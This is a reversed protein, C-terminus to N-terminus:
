LRSLTLAVNFHKRICFLCVQLCRWSCKSQFISKLLVNKKNHNKRKRKWSLQFDKVLLAGSSLSIWTFIFWDTSFIQNKCTNLSLVIWIAVDFRANRLYFTVNSRGRMRKTWNARSFFRILILHNLQVEILSLGLMGTGNIRNSLLFARIIQHKQRKCWSTFRVCSLVIKFSFISSQYVDISIWCSDLDSKIFNFIWRFHFSINQRNPDVEKGGTDNGIAERRALISCMCATHIVILTM